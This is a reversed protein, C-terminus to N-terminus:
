IENGFIVKYPKELFDEIKKSLNEIYPKSFQKEHAEKSEWHEYLFFQDPNNIDQHLHYKICTSESRSPLVIGKLLKKLKDARGPKAELIVLVIWPNKVM